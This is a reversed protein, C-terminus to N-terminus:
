ADVNMMPTTASAPTPRLIDESRTAMARRATGVYPATSTYDLTRVIKFLIPVHRNRRTKIEDRRGFVYFTYAYFDTPFPLIIRYHRRYCLMDHFVTFHVSTIRMTEGRLEKVDCINRNTGTTLKKERSFSVVPFAQLHHWTVARPLPIFFNSM